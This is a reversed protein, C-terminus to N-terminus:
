SCSNSCICDGLPLIYVTDVFRGEENFTYPLHFFGRKVEVARMYFAPIVSDGQTFVMWTDVLNGM